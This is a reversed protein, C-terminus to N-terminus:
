NNNPQYRYNKLEASSDVSKTLMKYISQQIELDSSNIPFCTLFRQGWVTPHQKTVKVELKQKPLMGVSAWINCVMAADINVSDGLGNFKKTTRGTDILFTKSIKKRAQKTTTQGLISGNKATMAWMVAQWIELSNADRDEKM